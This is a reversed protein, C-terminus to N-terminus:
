GCVDLDAATGHDLAVDSTDMYGIHWDYRVKYVNQSPVKCLVNLTAGNPVSRVNAAVGMSDAMVAGSSADAHASTGGIYDCGGLILMAAMGAVAVGILRIVMNFAGRLAEAKRTDSLISM